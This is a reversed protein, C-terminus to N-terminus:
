PTEVVAPMAQALVHPDEGDRVPGLHIHPLVDRAFRGCYPCEFDSYEILAVRALTSGKTATDLLSILETPVQIRPGPPPPPPPPPPPFFVLWLIAVAAATTALAAVVDLVGRVRGPQSTPVPPTPDIQKAMRIM